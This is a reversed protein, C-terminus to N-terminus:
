KSKPRRPPYFSQTIYLPRKTVEDFIRRVYEAVIGMFAINFSSTMIIAVLLGTYGPVSGPNSGLILFGFLRWLVYFLGLIFLSSSIIMCSIFIKFLFNSSFGFFGDLALKLLRVFSYNSKGSRRAHRDYKVGIQKFGLWFRLGRIYRNHEPMNGLLSVVKRSMICFDGSDKPIKISSVYNLVRYFIFFCATLLFKEKRNQRIGYVVEYGKKWYQIMDLILSPPDQLDADMVAVVDGTSRSLGATVAVQHGFNRALNAVGVREDHQRMRELIQSTQDDSGDNVYLIELNFDDHDGLSNIIEEHTHSLNLEENFCPVVVSLLFKKSSEVM